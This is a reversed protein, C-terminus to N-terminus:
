SICHEMTVNFLKKPLDELRSCPSEIMNPRPLVPGRQGQRSEYSHVSKLLM